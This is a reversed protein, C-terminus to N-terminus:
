FGNRARRIAAFVEIPSQNNSPLQANAIVERVHVRLFPNTRKEEAISSPV